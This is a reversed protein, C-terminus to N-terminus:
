NIIIILNNFLDELADRYAILAIVLGTVVVATAAGYETLELGDDKFFFNKM